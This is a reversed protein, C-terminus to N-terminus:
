YGLPGRLGYLRNFRLNDLFEERDLQDMQFAYHRAEARDHFAGSWPTYIRQYAEHYLRAADRHQRHSERTRDRYNDMMESRVIMGPPQFFHRGSFADFQRDRRRRLEDRREDVLLQRSAQPRLLVLAQEASERASTKAGRAAEKEGAAALAIVQSESGLTSWAHMSGDYLQTQQNGELEHLVYWTLSAIVGTNCYTITPQTLDVGKLAAVKRIEDRSFLKAPAWNEAVLVFPLTKAGSLHGKHEPSVFKRKYNAGLYFDETRCDVLQVDGQTIANEVDSTNAILHKRIEVVIFDGKVPKEATAMYSLPRGEKAWQATGGNLLAVNDHGFYNLSFYLRTAFAQDKATSGRGAIVVASDKSVGSAQMLEAFAKPSPLMGKLKKGQEEGKAVIKKWPVSIAGPIHGVLKKLNPKKTPGVPKGLYSSADNRVDLIVVEEQHDALWGTEVLPGPVQAAQTVTWVLAIALPVLIWRVVYILRQSKM